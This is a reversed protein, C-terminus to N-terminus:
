LELIIVNVNYGLEEYYKKHKPNWKVKVTKTLIM